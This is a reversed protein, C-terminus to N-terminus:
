SFPQSILGSCFFFDVILLLTYRSISYCACQIYPRTVKIAIIYSSVYICYLIHMSMVSQHLFIISRSTYKIGVYFSVIKGNIHLNNAHQNKQGEMLFISSTHIHTMHTHIIGQTHTYSAMRYTHTHTIGQSYFSYNCLIHHIFKMSTHLDLALFM